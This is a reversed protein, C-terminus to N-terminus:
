PFMDVKKAAKKGSKKPAPLEEEDSLDSFQNKSGAFMDGGSESDSDTTLGDSYQPKQSPKKPTQQEDDSMDSLSDSYETDSSSVDSVAPGEEVEDESDSLTGIDYEDSSFIDGIGVDDNEHFGRSGILYPLPRIVYPDKAERIVEDVLGSRGGQEDDSYDSDDDSTSPKMDLIEFADDIVKVGM